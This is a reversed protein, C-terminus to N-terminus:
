KLIAGLYLDSEAAPGLARTRNRLATFVRKIDAVTSPDKSAFLGAAFAGLGISRLEPLERSAEVASIIAQVLSGKKDDSPGATLVLYTVIAALHDDPRALYQRALAVTLNKTVSLQRLALAALLENKGDLVETLQALHQPLLGGVAFVGPHQQIFDFTPVVLEGWEDFLLCVPGFQEIGKSGPVPRFLITGGSGFPSYYDEATLTQKPGFPEFWGYENMLSERGTGVSALAKWAGDKVVVTRAGAPTFTKGTDVDIYSGPVTASGSDPGPTVVALVWVPHGESQYLELQLSVVDHVARADHLLRMTAKQAASLQLRSM